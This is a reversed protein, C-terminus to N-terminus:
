ASVNSSTKEGAVLVSRVTAASDFHEFHARTHSLGGFM